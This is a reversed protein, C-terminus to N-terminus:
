PRVYAVTNDRCHAGLPAFGATELRAAIAEVLAEGIIHPHLEVVIARLTSLDINMLVDGESGEIDCSLVTPRLASVTAALDLTPVTLQRRSWGGEEFLSAGWVMPRMYFLADEGADKSVLVGHLVEASVANLRYVRRLYGIIEPNAEVATVAEVGPQLAAFTSTMGFGAGLDLVRDGPRLLARLADVEPAEYVGGRIRRAIPEPMVHPMVPFRVGHLEIIEPGDDM